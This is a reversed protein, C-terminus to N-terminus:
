APRLIEDAIREAVMVTSLNINACPIVPFISADVVRLGEVGRVQGAPTTVAMPDDDRGMRCSCSAHWVGVTARRIFAELAEDDGLLTALPPGELILKGILFHRLAAPGDLLRALITTLVRNKLTIAAVQRVKDSYSAPFPDAVVGRLEPRELLRAFRRVAGALRELDRRDALLNFDVRPVDHWDSSNLRVRGAESYTKNVWINISAIQDGVSHWASKTAITAAMDGAPAGELDSSFRLGLLLHRRTRGNIRAHPLVFAAVAVSPHDMLGRGVGPRDALVDIGLARLEAAPGIGARLLLAPSQIAGCSLIVEGATFPVIRGETLVTVGTCRTGEFQLGTARALTLVTLNARARTAPDLYAMATSVRHDNVNSIPIPFHGDDFSGNQDALYPLGVAALAKGMALAHGPWRDPFIRSVPIPGDKGHLPGDFDVDRELKRFYPLVSGWNWGTAGRAEWEDYDAPNGRNALQGNISSGGGLVRAQEYKRLRPRVDPRNHPITETTVELENWTFRPNLYATGPFSDLIAAPIAGDPTDEGAEILLVRHGSRASLRNALVAGASGGGVIITDFHTSM